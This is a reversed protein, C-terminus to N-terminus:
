GSFIDPACAPYATMFEGKNWDQEIQFPTCGAHVLYMVSVTNNAVVGVYKGLVKFVVQNGGYRMFDGM